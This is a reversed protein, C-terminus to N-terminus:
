PLVSNKAAVPNYVDSYQVVFLGQIQDFFYIQVIAKLQNALAFLGDLIGNFNGRLTLGNEFPVVGGVHGKGFFVSVKANGTPNFRRLPMEQQLVTM